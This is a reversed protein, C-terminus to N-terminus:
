LKNQEKEEQEQKWLLFDEDDHNEGLISWAIFALPAKAYYTKGRSKKGKSAIAIGKLQGENVYGHSILTKLAYSNIQKIVKM